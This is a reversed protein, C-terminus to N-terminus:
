STTWAGGRMCHYVSRGLVPVVGSGDGLVFKTSIKCFVVLRNPLVKFDDALLLKKELAFKELVDTLGDSDLADLEEQLESRCFSGDM